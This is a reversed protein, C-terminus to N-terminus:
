DTTPRYETRFFPRFLLFTLPHAIPSNTIDAARMWVYYRENTVPDKRVFVFIPNALIALHTCYSKNLWAFGQAAVAVDLMTSMKSSSMNVDSYNQLTIENKLCSCRQMLLKSGFCSSMISQLNSPKFIRSPNIM